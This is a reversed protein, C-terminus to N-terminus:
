ESHVRRYRSRDSAFGERQIRDFFAQQMKRAAPQFDFYKKRALVEFAVRRKKDRQYLLVGEQVIRGQVMLPANNIARVDLSSLGCADELAAQINLEITLREYPPPSVALVVAIDVDSSPLPTGRAVSGYLYAIEVPQRELVGAVSPKLRAIIEAARRQRETRVLSKEDM